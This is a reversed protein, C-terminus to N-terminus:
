SGIISQDSLKTVSQGFRSVPQKKSSSGYTESRVPWAVQAPIECSLSVPSKYFDQFDNESQKASNIRGGTVESIVQDMYLDGTERNWIRLDQNRKM